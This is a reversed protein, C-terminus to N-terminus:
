EFPKLEGPKAHLMFNRLWPADAHPVAPHLAQPPNKAQNYTLYMRIEHVRISKAEKKPDMLLQIISVPRESRQTPISNWEGDTVFGVKTLGADKM